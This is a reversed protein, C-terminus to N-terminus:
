AMFLAPTRCSARSCVQLRQCVGMQTYDASFKEPTMILERGNIFKVQPLSKSPYRGAVHM